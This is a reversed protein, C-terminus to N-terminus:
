GPCANRASAMFTCFEDRAVVWIGGVNAMQGELASYAVTEGFYVDYTVTAVDGDIVVATPQLSIGGMAAGAATALRSENSV